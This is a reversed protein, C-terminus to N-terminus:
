CRALSARYALPLYVPDLLNWLIRRTTHSDNGKIVSPLFVSPRLQPFCFFTQLSAGAVLGLVNPNINYM